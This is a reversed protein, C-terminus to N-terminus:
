FASYSEVFLLIVTSCRSNIPYETFFAKFISLLICILFFLVFVFCVFFITWFLFLSCLFNKGYDWSWIYVTAWTPSYVRGFETIGKYLSLCKSMFSFMSYVSHPLRAKEEEGWKFINDCENEWMLIAISQIDPDEVIWINFSLGWHSPRLLHPWQYTSLYHPARMFPIQTRVFSDGSLERTGKWRTLVCLYSPWRRVLSCARM